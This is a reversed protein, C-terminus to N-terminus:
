KTRRTRARDPPETEDRPLRAPQPPKLNDLADRRERLSIRDVSASAKKNRSEGLEDVEGARRNGPMIMAYTYVYPM